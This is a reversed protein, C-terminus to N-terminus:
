QDNNLEPAQCHPYTQLSSPSVTGIIFNTHKQVCFVTSTIPFAGVTVYPQSSPVCCILASNLDAYIFYPFSHAGILPIVVISSHNAVLESEVCANTLLGCNVDTEM